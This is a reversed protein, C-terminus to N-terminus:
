RRNHALTQNEVREYLNLANTLEIKSLMKNVTNSSLGKDILIPGCKCWFGKFTCTPFFRWGSQFSFFFPHSPFFFEVMWYFHFLNTLFFFSGSDWLTSPYCLCFHLFNSLFINQSVQKSFDICWFNLPSDTHLTIMLQLRIIKRMLFERKLYQSIWSM